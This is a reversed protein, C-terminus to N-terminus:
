GFERPVWGLRKSQTPRPRIFMTGNKEHCVEIYQTSCSRIVTTGGAQSAWSTLEHEWPMQSRFCLKLRGVEGVPCTYRANNDHLILRPYGTMVRFGYFRTIMTMSFSNSYGIIVRFGCPIIMTTMSFPTSYRMIVRFEHPTGTIAVFSTSYGVMVRFGRLTGQITM